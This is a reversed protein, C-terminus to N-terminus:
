HIKLQNAACNLRWVCATELERNKKKKWLCTKRKERQIEGETSLTSLAKNISPQCKYTAAEKMIIFNNWAM